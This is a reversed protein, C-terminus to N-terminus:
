CVSYRDASDKQDIKFDNSKRQLYKRIRWDYFYCVITIILLEELHQVYRGRGGWFEDKLPLDTLLRIFNLIVLALLFPLIYRIFSKM